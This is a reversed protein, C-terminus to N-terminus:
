AVPKVCVGRQLKWSAIAVPIPEPIAVSQSLFMASYPLGKFLGTTWSPRRKLNQKVGVVRRFVLCWFGLVHLLSASRLVVQLSRPGGVVITAVIM